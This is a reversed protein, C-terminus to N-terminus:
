ADPSSEPIKVSAVLRDCQRVLAGVGPDDMSRRPCGFWGVVLGASCQHYWIRVFDNDTLFSEGGAVCKGLQDRARDFGREPLTFHVAARATSMCGEHTLCTPLNTGPVVIVNLVGPLNEPRGVVGHELTFFRWHDPADFAVSGLNLDAM